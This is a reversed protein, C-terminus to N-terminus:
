RSLEAPDGHQMRKLLYEAWHRLQRRMEKDSLGKARGDKILSDLGGEFFWGPDAEVQEISEIEIRFEYRQGTGTDWTAAIDAKIVVPVAPIGFKPQEFHRALEHRGQQIEIFGVEGHLKVDAPFPKIGTPDYYSSDIQPDFYTMIPVDPNPERAPRSAPEVLRVKSLDPKGETAMM